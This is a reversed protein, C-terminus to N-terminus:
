INVIMRVVMEYRKIKMNLPMRNEKSWAQVNNFETRSTDGSKTGPAGLTLDDAFKVPLRRM